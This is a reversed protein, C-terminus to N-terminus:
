SNTLKKYSEIGKIIAKKGEESATAQELKQIARSAKKYMADAHKNGFTNSEVDYDAANREDRLDHMDGALLEVDEVGCNYLYKYITDHDKAYRSKAFIDPFNPKVFQAALNFLAYYSRSVSTRWSAENKGDKLNEALDLFAKPEM